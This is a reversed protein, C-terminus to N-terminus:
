RGMVKIMREEEVVEGEEVRRGGRSGMGRALTRRHVRELGTAVEEGEREM